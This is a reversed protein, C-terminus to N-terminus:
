TYTPNESVPLTHIYATRTPRSEEMCRARRIQPIRARHTLNESLRVWLEAARDDHASDARNRSGDPGRRHRVPRNNNCTRCLYTIHGLRIETHRDNKALSQPGEQGYISPCKRRRQVNESNGTSEGGVFRRCKAPAMAQGKRSGLIDNDVTPYGGTQAHLTM